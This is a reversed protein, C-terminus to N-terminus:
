RYVFKMEDLLDNCNVFGLSVKLHWFLLHVKEIFQIYQGVGDKFQTGGGPFIFHAGSRIVWHQEKKYDM